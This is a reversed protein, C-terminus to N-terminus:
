AISQLRTLGGFMADELPMSVPLGAYTGQNRLAIERLTASFRDFEETYRKRAEADIHMHLRSGAEADVLDVEGTWPPTRDEDKWLQMLMLGGAAKVKAVCGAWAEATEENIRTFFPVQTASAHDVACSESIVLGVGGEVCRRYYDGLRPEPVGDQCWQRQMGPLVFRNPLTLPGLRFPTYLPSLDLSM